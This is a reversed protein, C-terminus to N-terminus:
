PAPSDTTSIGQNTMTRLIVNGIAVVPVAVHPPIQVGLQGSAAAIGLTLVNFWFTKSKWFAKTNM